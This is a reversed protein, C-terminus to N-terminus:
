NRSRFRRRPNATRRRGNTLEARKAEAEHGLQMVGDAIVQQLQGIGDHALQQLGNLYSSAERELKTGHEAVERNLRAIHAVVASEFALHNTNADRAIMEAHGGAVTELNEQESRSVDVLRGREDNAIDALEAVASATATDLEVLRAAFELRLAELRAAWIDTSVGPTPPDSSDTAAASPAPWSSRESTGVSNRRDTADGDPCRGRVPPEERAAEGGPSPGRSRSKGSATPAQDQSAQLQAVPRISARPVRAPGPEHRPVEAPAASAAQLPVVFAPRYVADNRRRWPLRM